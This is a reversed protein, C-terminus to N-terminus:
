YSPRKTGLRQIAAALRSKASVLEATRAAMRAGHDVPTVVLSRLWHRVGTQKKGKAQAEMIALCRALDRDAQDAVSQAAQPTIIGVQMAIRAADVYSDIVFIGLIRLEIRAAEDILAEEGKVVDHIFVLPPPLELSTFAKILHKAVIIDGKYSSSCCYCCCCRFEYIAQDGERVM